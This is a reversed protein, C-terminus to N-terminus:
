YVHRSPWIIIGIDELVDDNSIHPNSFRAKKMLKRFLFTLVIASLVVCSQRLVKTTM